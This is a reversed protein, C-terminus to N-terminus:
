PLVRRSRGCAAASQLALVPLAELDGGNYAKLADWQAVADPPLAQWPPLVGGFRSLDGERRGLRVLWRVDLLTTYACFPELSDLSDM